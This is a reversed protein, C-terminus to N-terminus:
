KQQITIFHLFKAGLIESKGNIPYMYNKHGELFPFQCLIKNRLDIQFTFHCKPALTEM